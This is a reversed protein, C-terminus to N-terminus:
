RSFIICALSSASSSCIRRIAPSSGRNRFAPPFYPCGARDGRNSRGFPASAPVDAFRRGDVASAAGDPEKDRARNSRAFRASAPDGQGRVRVREGSWLRRVPRPRRRWWQRQPGRVREWIWPRRQPGQVVTNLGKSRTEVMPTSARPRCRWLRRVPRSRRRWLRHQPGQVADGCDTNLGQSPTEM